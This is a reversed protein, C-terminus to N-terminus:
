LLYAKSQQRFLDGGRQLMDDCFQREKEQSCGEDTVVHLYRVNWKGYELSSEVPWRTEVQEITM